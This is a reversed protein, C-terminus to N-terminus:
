SMIMFWGVFVVFFVIVMDVVLCAKAVQYYKEELSERMWYNRQYSRFRKVYYHFIFYNILTFM